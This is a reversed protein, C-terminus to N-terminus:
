KKEVAEMAAAPATEAQRMLESGARIGVVLGVNVCLLCIWPGVKWRVDWTVAWLGFAVLLFSLIIATFARTSDVGAKEDDDEESFDWSTYIGYITLALGFNVSLLWAYDIHTRNDVSSLFWIDFSILLCSLIAATIPRKPTPTANPSQPKTEETFQSKSM